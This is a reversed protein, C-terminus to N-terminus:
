VYRMKLTSILSTAVLTTFSLCVCVSLYVCLCVSVCVCVLRSGYGEQAHTGFHNFACHSRCFFASIVRACCRLFTTKLLHPFLCSKSLFSCSRFTMSHQISSNVVGTTSIRVAHKHGQINYDYALKNYIVM